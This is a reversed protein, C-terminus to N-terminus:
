MTEVVMTQVLAIATHCADETITSLNVIRAAELPTLPQQNYQIGSLYDLLDVLAKGMRDLADPIALSATVVTQLRDLKLPALTAQVAERVIQETPVRLGQAEASELAQRWISPRLSAEVGVMPRIMKENAPLMLGPQATQLAEVVRGAGILQRARSSKFGWRAECYEDFTGFQERYLRQKAIVRLADVALWYQKFGRELVRELYRFRKRESGNLRKPQRSQVPSRAEDPFKQNEEM